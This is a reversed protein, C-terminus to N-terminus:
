CPRVDEDAKDEGGEYACDDDFVGLLAVAAHAVGFLAASLYSCPDGHSWSFFTLWFIIIGLRKQPECSHAPTQPKGWNIFM